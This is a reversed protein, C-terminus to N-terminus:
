ARFRQYLAIRATLRVIEDTTMAAIRELRGRPVNDLLFVGVAAAIAAERAALYDFFAQEELTDDDM